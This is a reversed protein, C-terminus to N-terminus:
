HATAGHHEILIQFDLMEKDIEIFVAHDLNYADNIAALLENKKDLRTLEPRLLVLEQAIKAQIMGVTGSKIGHEQGVLFKIIDTYFREEDERDLERMAAEWEEDTDFGWFQPHFESYITTEFEECIADLIRFPPYGSHKLYSVYGDDDADVWISNNGQTLLRHREWTTGPVPEEVIGYRELQNGFLSAMLLKDRLSYTTSM